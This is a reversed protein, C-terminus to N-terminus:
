AAAVPVEGRITARYGLRKHPFYDFVAHHQVLRNDWFVVTHPQWKVRLQAIVNERITKFLFGLLMDQEAQPLGDISQTFGENVYLAQDGTEPIQRVIPHHASPLEHLAKQGSLYLYHGIPDHRAKLGKLLTQLRPSLSAFIQRMDMFLTDGGIPPVVEMRLMSISPPRADSSIDSHWTTGAAGKSREDAKIRILGEPTTQNPKASPFLEGLRAAFQVQAGTTMVQNRAVVVGARAIELKLAEVDTDSLNVLALEHDLETGFNPSLPQTTIM